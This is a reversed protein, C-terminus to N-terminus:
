REQKAHRIRRPKRFRSLLLKYKTKFNCIKCNKVTSISISFNSNFTSSIAQSLRITNITQSIPKDYKFDIKLLDKNLQM